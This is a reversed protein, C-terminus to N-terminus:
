LRRKLRRITEFAFTLWYFWSLPLDRARLYDLREGGFGKKFLTVGAFRHRPDDTPAIGWLDFIQCGRKKAERMARWLMAYSAPMKPYRLSSGSYHYVATDGYFVFMGIALVENKYIAKIFVIQNDELFALFHNKFFDKSFPVFGHRKQSEMQLRYLQDIESVDQSVETKVGEKEARRIYYRTNKRMQALIESEPLTLDIRLTTEAHLHMPAPVLGLQNFLLRNKPTNKLNPRIRIFVVGEQSSIKKLEKFLSFLHSKKGDLLIPGGPITFYDGRKAKEKIVLAVGVLKSKEFLGLRFVKKGLKRHVEGWNWSQLFVNPHQSLVFKEWTKKDVIKRVKM